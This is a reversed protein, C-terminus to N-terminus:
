AIFYMGTIALIVPMYPWWDAMKNNIKIDLVMIQVQKKSLYLQGFYHKGNLM